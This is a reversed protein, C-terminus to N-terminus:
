WTWGWKMFFKVSSVLHLWMGRLSHSSERAWAHTVCFDPHYVIAGHEGLRRSLDADELYLFFRPDFGKLKRFVKTRVLLFCGTAFGVSTPADLPEDAMTYERRARRFPGGLKELRGLFLYRLTPQRRPLPQERGDPFVVRPTLAVVDPHADMYAVMASLQAPDFTVDPNILLHYRSKLMPLVVNNARGFGQNKAQPLIRAGPHEFAIREAMDELPSNDVVFLTVAEDAEELCRVTDLVSMPSHYLVICASVRPDTLM